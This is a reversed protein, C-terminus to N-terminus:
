GSIRDYQIKATTKVAEPEEKRAVYGSEDRVQFAESGLTLGESCICFSNKGLNESLAHLLQQIAQFKFCAAGTAPRLCIIRAM